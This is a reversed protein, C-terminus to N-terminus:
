WPSRLCGRASCDERRYALNCVFDQVLILALHPAARSKFSLPRVGEHCNLDLLFLDPTRGSKLNLWESSLSDLELFIFLNELDTQLDASSRASLAM